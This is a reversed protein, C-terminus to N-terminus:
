YLSKPVLGFPQQSSLPSLALDQVPSSVFDVIPAIAVIDFNQM